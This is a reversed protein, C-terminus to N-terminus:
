KQPNNSPAAPFAPVVVQPPIVLGPQEAGRAGEKQVTLTGDPNQIILPPQGAGDAPASDAAAPKPPPPTDDSMVTAPFACAALLALVPLRPQAIKM